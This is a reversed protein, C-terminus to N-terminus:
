RTLFSVVTVISGSVILFLGFTFLAEYIDIFLSNQKNLYYLLLISGSLILSLGGLMFLFVPNVYWNIGKIPENNTLFTSAILGVSGITIISCGTQVETHTVM